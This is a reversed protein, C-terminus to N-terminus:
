FKDVLELQRNQNLENAVEVFRDVVVSPIQKGNLLRISVSNTAIEKEGLILMYPVKQLQFSKIKNGMTGESKDVETRIRYKRLHAQLKEAYPVCKENIPVIGVQLPALWFPFNGAFHEILLGIFRELSGYIVRHVVIPTKREGNKDTYQLDFRSPLQMDLQFTGTQWERGLADKMKLDIKPGYFAGGGEDIDYNGKGFKKDLIKILISEAKDWVEKDGLFSQPRTSLM